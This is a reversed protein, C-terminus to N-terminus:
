VKKWKPLKKQQATFSINHLKREESVKVPYVDFSDNLAVADCVYDPNILFLEGISVLDIIHGYLSFMKFITDFDAPHVGMNLLIEKNDVKVGGM